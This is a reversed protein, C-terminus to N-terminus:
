AVPASSTSPARLLEEADLTMAWYYAMALNRRITNSHRGYSEALEAITWGGQVHLTLLEWDPTWPPVTWAPPCESPLHERLDRQYKTRRPASRAM